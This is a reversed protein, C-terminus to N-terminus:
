RRLYEQILQTFKKFEQTLDKLTDSIVGYKQDMLQFGTRIEERLTRIDERTARLETKLEQGVTKVEDRVLRVEEGVSKVKEGVSEVKEGVSDVKEGVSNVKTGVSRVEDTTQTIYKIGTGFGESIEEKTSGLRIRFGRLGKSISYKTKTQTVHIPARDIEIEQLFKELQQRTGEAVAEVAGDPLNRVYGGVGLSNAIDRVVYRFGVGQVIGTATITLRLREAEKTRDPSISSM